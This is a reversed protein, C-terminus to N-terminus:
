NCPFFPIKDTSLFFFFKRLRTKKGDSSYLSWEGRGIHECHVLRCSPSLLTFIRLFSISLYTLCYSLLFILFFSLSNWRRVTQAVWRTGQLYGRTDTRIHSDMERIILTLRNGFILLTFQHVCTHLYLFIFWNFYAFSPVVHLM